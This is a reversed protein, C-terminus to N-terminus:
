LAVFCVATLGDSALIICVPTLIKINGQRYFRGALTCFYVKYKGVYVYFAKLCCCHGEHDDLTIPMRTMRYAVFKIEEQQEATCHNFHPTALPSLGVQEPKPWEQQSKLWKPRLSNHGVHICTM